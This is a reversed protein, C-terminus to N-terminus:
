RGKFNRTAIKLRLGPIGLNLREKTRMMTESEILLQWRLRTSTRRQEAQAITCILEKEKRRNGKFSYTTTTQNILKNLPDIRNQNQAKHQSLSMTILSHKKSLFLNSGKSTINESKWKTSPKGSESFIKGIYLIALKTIISTNISSKRHLKQM